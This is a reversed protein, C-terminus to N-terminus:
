KKRGGKYPREEALRSLLARFENRERRCAERAAVAEARRRERRRATCAKRRERRARKLREELDLRARAREAETTQWPRMRLRGSLEEGLRKDEHWQQLRWWSERPSMCIRVGVCDLYGLVNSETSMRMLSEQALRAFEEEVEWHLDDWLYGRM